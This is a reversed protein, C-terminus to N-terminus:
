RRLGRTSHGSTRADFLLDVDSPAQEEQDRRIPRTVIPLPDFGRWLPMSSLLASLLAGNRLLWSVFGVTLGLSTATFATLLLARAGRGAGTVEAFERNFADELADRNLKLLAFDILGRPKAAVVPPADAVPAEVSVAAVPAPADVSVAPPSAILIGADTGAPSGAKDGAVPAGFGPRARSAAIDSPRAGANNGTNVKDYANALGNLVGGDGSRPVSVSLGPIYHSSGDTLSGRLVPARTPNVSWTGVSSGALTYNPNTLTGIVSLVYSGANTTSSIGFSNTLGTLVNVGQGNQLGTASLGPNVPSAGYTSSGGLATVTVPAPNVTWSGTNTASVTYNSNTLAGIVSLVYSGANSTSGIGFSNSLGALAGIGQGNQLGTASLGPNAPSAGYTSSGGLATVTVPAPNVTWSGTGTGALTYNSNTLTGVVSLVYSGANSTSGIGFSNSLGTLAGVGQGNQLGTASLGPNGPSSGYTSSGGLATVTVSAPNVTLAGLSSFAFAYGSIAALSGLAPTIAYPGGAVTATAASGSSTVSVSGTFTSSANDALFASSVGGQYGSVSYNSLIASTADTGYTKTANTSAFTLTPQFAFLYRNGTASVSGPALTAYTANWIATNSSDLGGFTDSGPANSYILWRGSAATVASGGANNVFAGSASLVPSAASVPAGSALTLNGSAQITATGSATIGSTAQVTGVTLNQNNVFSVSGVNAAITGVLNAQGLSFAGVGSLLLNGATITGGSQTVTGTDSIVLDGSSSAVTAALNDGGTGSLTLTGSGNNTITNGSSSTDIGASGSGTAGDITLNGSSITLTNSGKISFGSGSTSSGSLAVTGSTTLGTGTNMRIGNGSGSTGDLALTGAGSNTLATTGSNFWVGNDSSSTGGLTLAGSSDTVTNGGNIYLGYASTSTGSVSTSGSTTLNSNLAVGYATSGVGNVSLLGVGSNTLTVLSGFFYVGPNSASTGNLALAGSSDTISNTGSLYLGYLSSSNGSLSVTGTSSISAGSALNVGSNSSSTGAITLSGGAGASVSSSGSFSVGNGSSSVGSITSTGGGVSIVANALTIGTGAGSDTATVILNGTTTLGATGQVTGVTLAQNNVFSVSGANAAIAGVMNAQGLAFSGTGSLLLNGATITGASQTVAGTDSIVLDGSSSTITAGLKDGGTGNLTLIGSGNNTIANGGSSSNIGASGSATTGSITLNGSSVTVANVSGFLVGYGASSTGAISMTGSTALTAANKLQLGYGSTNVGNLSLTGSGSNALSNAGAFLVGASGLNATASSDDSTGTISLSGGGSNTVSATAFQTGLTAGSGTTASSVGSVTVNGSSVNFATSASFIVGTGTNSTGSFSANGSVTVNTASAGLLELAQSTSSNAILAFTTAGSDTLAVTGRLLIGDNSTSTGNLTLAGGSATVANSGSFNFGVSDTSSGSVSVAGAATLSTGSALDLGFYSSSTGALNFAGTGNNTLTLTGGNQEIGTGSTAATGILNVSGSSATVSNNGVFYIGYRNNVSSDTTGQMTLAGSSIVTAGSQLVIGHGLGSTGGTGNLTVSGATTLAAGPQLDLGGGFTISPAQSLATVSLSGTSVTLSTTGSIDVGFGNPSTGSIASTGSGVSITANSLSVGTNTGSATATATLTGGLTISAGTVSITSGTMSLSGGNTATIAANVNVAGAANLALTNGSSWSVANAVTIDGNQVGSAGTSVTVNATALASQLTSVSLISSNGTPTFTNGSNSINTDSGSSITVDYPDLLLTGTKGSAATVDVRGGFGLVGHSSVEVAGGNGINGGTATISGRFDTVTDSWVVVNGGDGSSGSASITAGQAISTTAATKVPGAVLKVSLDVGGHLDGGILITGGSSGNATLRATSTLAVKNGTVVVTGGKNRKGGNAALRGSVTVTGSGGDLVINGPRGSVSRASVSGSVNVVDHVAQQATAAKIAVTGGAATIRGAIDILARGDATTAGTPVTVQLFGDGTPNLTVKEGAGLGVRGLPVSVTGSNSVSGGIMGVFSGAAGSINGANSVAASAGKGSFNLNGANFDANGIDLTSAVFGGGVQVSGSPTIAIGNPNVLFVQGNATIRGAITSSMTGTVRNLIASGANPQVFDVGANAGVSFSNWDVIARSSTQNITLSNGAPTGIRVQGSAVTGGQPLVAQADARATLAVISACGLLLASSARSGAFRWIGGATTSAKRM